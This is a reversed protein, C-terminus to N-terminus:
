FTPINEIIFEKDMVRKEQDAACEFLVFTAKLIRRVNGDCAENIYALADDTFPFEEKFDAFKLYNEIVRRTEDNNLNNIDLRRVTIRDALPPSLEILRSLAKPNMAFLLCWERHKDLLTRLNHIYNDLQVKSLRGTTLDEFEDVLIFVHTYGERKLLKVIYRIVDAEKGSIQRLNGSTLAEWTKNIGFDSSIFEYFYYAVTSDMTDDNLIKQVIDSLLEDFKRKKSHPLPRVFSDLFKKYSITNADSYPNISEKMESFLVVSDPEYPKLLEQIDARSQITKIIHNWVYKRTNEEGIKSIITGIFELISGGPNDIYITFPKLFTQSDRIENLKSKTYMLLQTKGSGYDGVITASIFQDDEEVQNPVLANAIFQNIGNFVETDLPRLSRNVSDSGNINSTGSRPFPNFKIGWLAYKNAVPGMQLIDELGKYEKEDM